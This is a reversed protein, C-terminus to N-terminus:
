RSSLFAGGHINTPNYFSRQIQNLEIFVLTAIM